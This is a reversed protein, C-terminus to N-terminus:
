KGGGVYIYGKEASNQGHPGFSLAEFHAFRGQYAVRSFVDVSPPLNYDWNGPPFRFEFDEFTTGLENMNESSVVSGEQWGNNYTLLREVRTVLGASTARYTVRRLERQSQTGAKLRLFSIENGTFTQKLTANNTTYNLAPVAQMLDMEIRGVVGRAMIDMGARHSATTWADASQQFSMSMMLVIMSLVALAVLIEILTFARKNINRKVVM